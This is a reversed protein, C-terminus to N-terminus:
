LQTPWIAPDSEGILDRGRVQNGQGLRSVIPAFRTEAALPRAAGGEEHPFEAGSQQRKPSGARTRQRALTKKLEKLDIQGLAIRQEDTEVVARIRVIDFEVSAESNGWIPMLVVETIGLGARILGDQNWHRGWAGPVDENVAVCYRSGASERELGFTTR